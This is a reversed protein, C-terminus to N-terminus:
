ASPPVPEASRQRPNPFDAAVTAALEMFALRASKGVLKLDVEAGEALHDDFGIHQIARCRASFYQTLQETDVNSSGPRPSSIVVIASSVLRGFGHADLWDLTSAASRAGDIAPSSVLIISDATELVGKMASHSLGTGCDTIIINYFRQLISLVGRYEDDSFAESAAPDRESALVELRSPAQSTHARVDSYRNLNGDALLDRVTSGTQRPVRQALTGLDPNADVAIVRDGRLSALTAGLTVATTTKGVGGKLSLVAIRYDGTLPQNIAAVLQERHLESRPTRPKITGGSAKYVARRWGKRPTRRDRKVLTVDDLPRSDGQPVPSIVQESGTTTPGYGPPPAQPPAFAASGPPLQYPSAPPVPLPAGQQPGGTNVAPPASPGPFASGAPFPLPATPAEPARPVPPTGYVGATDSSFRQPAVYEAGSATSHGDAFPAPGAAGDHTPVGGYGPTGNHTAVEHIPAGNRTPDGNVTPVGYNGPAGAATVGGTRPEAGGQGAWPPAYAAPLAPADDGRPVWSPLSQTGFHSPGPYEDPPAGFGPTRSQDSRWSRDPGWIEDAGGSHAGGRHREPAWGPESGPGHGPLRGSEPGPEPVPGSEPLLGPGAVHGPHPEPVPPLDSFRVPGYDPSPEPYSAHPQGDPGAAGAAHDAPQDDRRGM